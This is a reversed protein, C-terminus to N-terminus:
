DGEMKYINKEELFSIDVQTYVGEESQIDIQHGLRDLIKKTLYLGMGTSEEYLRGNEGTFFPQYLRRMDGRSIGVGNDYFSLVLDGGRYDNGVRIERKVGEKVKSYKISNQIIQQFVFELWKRDTRVFVEEGVDLKPYISNLVFATKNDNIVKRVLDLVAVKEVRLDLNFDQIRLNYLAIDLGKELRDVEEQISIEDKRSGIGRELLLNIVSIPTKMQHIWINNFDRYLKERRDYEALREQYNSYVTDLARRYIDEELSRAQPLSSLYSPDEQDLSRLLIGYTRKRRLYQVGLYLFVLLLSLLFAYVLSSTRVTKRTKIVEMSVVVITFFTSLCYVFILAIHDWLFKRFNM